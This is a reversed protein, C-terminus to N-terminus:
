GRRGVEDLDAIVVAALDRAGPPDGFLHDCPRRLHTYTFDVDIGVQAERHCPRYPLDKRFVRAFEVRPFIETRGAVRYFQYYLPLYLEQTASPLCLERKYIYHIERLTRLFTRLFKRTYVCPISQYRVWHRPSTETQLPTDLGDALGFGWFEKLYYSIAGIIFGPLNSLNEM